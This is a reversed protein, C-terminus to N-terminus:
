IILNKFVVDKYVIKLKNCLFFQYLNNDCLLSQGLNNNCLFSQSLNGYGGMNNCVPILM